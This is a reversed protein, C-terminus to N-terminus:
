KLYPLFKKIIGAPFQLKNLEDESFSLLTDLDGICNQQCLAQTKNLFEDNKLVNKL